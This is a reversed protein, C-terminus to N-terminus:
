TDGAVVPPEGAAVGGPAPRRAHRPTRVGQQVGDRSADRRPVQKRSHGKARGKRRAAVQEFPVGDLTAEQNAFQQWREIAVQVYGPDLEIALVRRDTMEGAIITTGSGSFPEYVYDGASSNNEMPRKMCEVPKQTGHETRADETAGGFANMNAIDWITTQRRDGQWNGTKGRRVMYWCCEHKWHYDGRSIPAHQKNWVIQARTEFRSRHLSDEVVSSYLAGHWVYAIDGPFLDYAASWDARSDNRVEGRRVGETSLFSGDVAGLRGPEARWGPDYEVGYPPDTVMLKPRKGGLVKQVADADTCDGCILRHKGLVWLDGPRVIPVRPPEPIVEEPPAETGVHIGWGRLQAEPFGLQLIDYGQTKLSGIEGQVLEKDWGSLLAVQNDALRMAQKDSESLGNRQTFTFYTLGALRAALLRGHGKLIVRDEDVVIDQDPGFKTLLSALLAIQSEPHTRANREYPVFWELPKYRAADQVPWHQPIVLRPARPM